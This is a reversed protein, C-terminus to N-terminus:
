QSQKPLEERVTNWAICFSKVEKILKSKQHEISYYYYNHYYNNNIMNIQGKSIYAQLFAEINMDETEHKDIRHNCIEHLTSQM